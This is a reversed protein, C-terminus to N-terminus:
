KQNHHSKADYIDRILTHIVEQGLLLQLIKFQETPEIDFRKFAEAGLPILDRLYICQRTLTDVLHAGSIEYRNQLHSKGNTQNNM